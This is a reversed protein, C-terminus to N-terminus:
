FVGVESWDEDKAVLTEHQAFGLRNSTGYYEEYDDPSPPYKAFPVFTITCILEWGEASIGLQDTEHNYMILLPKEPTIHNRINFSMSNGEINTDILLYPL